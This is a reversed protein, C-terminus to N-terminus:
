FLFTSVFRIPKEFWLVRASQEVHALQSMLFRHRRAETRYSLGKIIKIDIMENIRALEKKIIRATRYKIMTNIHIM